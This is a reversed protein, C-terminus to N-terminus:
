RKRIFQVIGIVFYIIAIILSISGISGVTRLFSGSSNGYSAGYVSFFLIAFFLAFLGFIINKFWKKNRIKSNGVYQPEPTLPPISFPSETKKLPYGCHVCKDAADSIEKGCEPCKILAM